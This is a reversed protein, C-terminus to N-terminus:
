PAAQDGGADSGTERALRERLRAEDLVAQEKAERVRRGQAQISLDDLLAQEIKDQERIFEERRREKLNEMISTEQHAGIMALRRKEVEEELQKERCRSEEVAADLRGITSYSAMVAQVSVERELAQVIEDLVASREQQLEEQKVREEDVLKKAELYERRREDEMIERYRLVADLNFRFRRAM